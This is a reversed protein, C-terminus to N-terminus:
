SLLALLDDRTLQGAQGTDGLAADALQRKKKQLELIREEVTDKAVVRYVLVPKDQGIRHTRDAAQDEVAPNWWPDLLFVHDAATLNLGTGGAKLSILLVPPGDDAQFDEVVKQRNATSGDLRLFDLGKAKLHPEVLNLFSTWQSFVLAKHGAEHLPELSEILTEIKASTEASQGPVLSPHCCAQRLRLLAELAALVNGGGRLREVVEKQTAARITDYVGREQDGLEAHLIMDTRTPLDPAVERKMRRLVFPRIRARLDAAREPDGAAIPRSFREDFESRGGLLGRNTFHLQSWLEDLRNEVPTGSLSVRFKANLAFAAKASQSIPNKIAQAEDLVAVEWERDSLEHQNLRLLSYTTLVVDAEPDLERRPGHYRCVKLNPRFRAIEQEWNYLVSTPCVVLSPHSLIAITQLTKGLGMDDALVAGLETRKLFSLWNVGVRQYPRLDADLDKPLPAEPISDFGEILPRLRELKPPPPANLSKALAALEPLARTPIDGREDKADFLYALRHGHEKLWEEPLSAFGGEMLPVMHFGQVYAQVVMKPDARRKKFPDDEDDSETAFSLEFGDEDFRLDPELPKPMVDVDFLEDEDESLENWRELRGILEYLERGSFDIRRGPVMHLEDRLRTLLNREAKQDREPISGQIYVAEGREVRIQPPNGYVLHPAVSVKGDQFDIDLDIRPALHSVLRPVDEDIHIPFRDELLPVTEGILKPWDLFDFRDVIPLKQWKLGCLDTEGLLHLTGEQEGVAPVVIRALAKPAAITFVLRQGEMSVRGEPRLRRSSIRIPTGDLEANPTGSLIRFIEGMRRLPLDRTRYRSLIADAELDADSLELRVNQPPRADLDAVSQELPAEQDGPGVLWRELAMEFGEAFFRYVLRQEPRPDAAPASGGKHAEKLHIAVAAVHACPDSKSRCDCDWEGDEPYLIVTNPKARNPVRVTVLVEDPDLKEIRFIDQRALSVGSSWVKPTCAKHVARALEDLAEPPLCPRAAKAM